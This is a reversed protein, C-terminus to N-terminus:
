NLKTHHKSLARGLVSQKLLNLHNTNQNLLYVHKKINRRRTNSSVNIVSWAKINFFYYNYFWWSHIWGLLNHVFILFIVVYNFFFNWINNWYNFFEGLWIKSNNLLDWYISDVYRFSNIFKWKFMIEVSQLNRCISGKSVWCLIRPLRKFM